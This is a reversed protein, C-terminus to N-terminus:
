NRSLTFRSFVSWDTNKGRSSQVTLLFFSVIQNFFEAAIVTASLKRFGKPRDAVVAAVAVAAM